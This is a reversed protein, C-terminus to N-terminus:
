VEMEMDNIIKGHDMIYGKEMNIYEKVQNKILNGNEPTFIIQDMIINEKVM